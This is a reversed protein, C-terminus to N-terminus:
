LNATTREILHDVVAMLASRHDAGAAVAAAYVERQRDSSTGREILGGIRGVEDACGLAEADPLVLEVLETMLDRYPRLENWGYDILELEDLPYRQARWINEEILFPEYVRWRQNEVRRRWLMRLLSVYTAAITLADEVDPCVDCARFELTPYRASPRIEWWIKTADEIVGPLVLAEVHRHYESWTTFHPPVGTRPMAKFISKRYSQLGTDDGDWFPSSTSLAVLHPIFYSVQGMLDIRLDEDDIGVHVHMGGILLHALVAGMDKALAQYRSRPTPLQERWHGFPHTSAAIIALGEKDAEEAVVTRLQRLEDRAGAVDKAPATGIEIQSRMFEPAVRDGLQAQCAELISGPPDAVLGRTRRDVLLYEEEIGMTFPPRPIPM